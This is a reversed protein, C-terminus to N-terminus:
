HPEHLKAEREEESMIGGKSSENFINCQILYGYHGNVRSLWTCFDDQKFQGIAGSQCIM